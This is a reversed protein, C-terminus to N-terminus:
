QKVIRFTGEVNNVSAKIFYIGTSLDSIDLSYNQTNPQATRVVQGLMSVIQLNEINSKASVNLINNAPNPYFKFNESLQLDEIGLVTASTIDITLAGETSDTSGSWYGVNVWYQTGATVAVGSLTETGGSGTSDVRVVCSFAGCSGSYIAVEHDWFSTADVVVDVTGNVDPTFTYWVGDNMGGSCASVFGSNNTAASADQSNNYPLSGVVFADSCADNAPPPPPTGVCIDFNNNQVGTGYGYVRVYYTTTATLGTLNLVNPDSDDFFVLSGCGGSADYVGMAMDPSISTGGGQNIINTINIRHAAGTAVFSFWVDTNPTGVVDDPQASATAGVTTGTTVTSCSYDANVTLPVANVCEDNAPPLFFYFDISIWNGLGGSCDSQVYLTYEVGDVLNSASATTGAVNGSDIAGATGQAVGQPQIEWNYATAGASADWSLDASDPATINSVAINAVDPCAPAEILSVVINSWNATSGSWSQELTLELFGDVSPDYSGGPITGEFTLTTADGNGAQGSTPPDILVSGATTTFTLDAEVSYPGGSVSEWDVTVVFDVYTVGPAGAGNAVDNINVTPGSGSTVGIPGVVAPFDYQALASLSSMVAIFLFTIKKM